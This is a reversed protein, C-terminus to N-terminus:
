WTPRRRITAQIGIPSTSIELQALTFAQTSDPLHKPSGDDPAAAGRAGAPPRRRSVM